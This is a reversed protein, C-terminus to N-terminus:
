NIHLSSDKKSAQTSSNLTKRDIWFPIAEVNNGIELMHEM